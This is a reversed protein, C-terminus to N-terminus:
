QETGALLPTAMSTGSMYTAACTHQGPSDTGLPGTGRAAASLVQLVFVDTSCRTLHLVACQTFFGRAVTALVM